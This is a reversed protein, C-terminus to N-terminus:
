LETHIEILLYLLWVRGKEIYYQTFDELKSFVSLMITKVNPWTSVYQLEQLEDVDLRLELVSEDSVLQKSKMLKSHVTKQECKLIICEVCIKIEQNMDEVTWTAAAVDTRLSKSNIVKSKTFIPVSFAM